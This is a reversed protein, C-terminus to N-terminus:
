GEIRRNYEEETEGEEVEDEEEEEEEEERDWYEEDYGYFYSKCIERGEPDFKIMEIEKRERFPMLLQHFGRSEAKLYIAFAEAYDTWSNKGDVELLKMVGTTTWTITIVWTIPQNTPIGM